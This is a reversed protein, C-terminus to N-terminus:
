SNPIGWAIWDVVDASSVTATFVNGSTSALLPNTTTRGSLVVGHITKLGPVTVTLTTTVALGQGVAFGSYTGVSELLKNYTTTDTATINFAM